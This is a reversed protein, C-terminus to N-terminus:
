QSRHVPACTAPAARASLRMPANAHSTTDWGSATAASAAIAGSDGGGGGGGGSTRCGCERM